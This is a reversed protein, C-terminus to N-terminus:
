HMHCIQNVYIAHKHSVKKDRLCKEKCKRCAPAFATVCIDGDFYM